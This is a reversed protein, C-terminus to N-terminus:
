KSISYTNFKGKFGALEIITRRCNLHDKSFDNLFWNIKSTDLCKFIYQIYPIDISSFSFGYDYIETIDSNKLKYFFDMNKKIQNDTNKYLFNISKCIIDEIELNDDDTNKSSNNELKNNHGIILLSENEEYSYTNNYNDFRAGHIHCIKDMPLDYINELTETYNFTLFLNDGNLLNDITKIKSDYDLEINKVWENFICPIGEIAIRLQNAIDNSRENDEIKNDSTFVDEIFMVSELDLESLNSEFDQWLYDNNEYNNCNKVNEFLWYFFRKNEDTDAFYDGDRNEILDPLKPILNFDYNERINLISLKLWDRFDTYRTKFGHALDFGNGVIFLKSM